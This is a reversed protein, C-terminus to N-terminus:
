STKTKGINLMALAIGALFWRAATDFGEIITFTIGYGFWNWQPISKAAFIILAILEVFLIVNWFSMEKTRALLLCVFLASLLDTLFQVIMNVKVSGMEGLRISALVFPGNKMREAVAQKETETAMTSPSYPIFYLGSVPANELIAQVVADENDFGLVSTNYIPLLTHSIWGWLFLIVGGILTGLLVNKTLM